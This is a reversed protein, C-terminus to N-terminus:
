RGPFALMLDPRKNPPQNSLDFIEAVPLTPVTVDLGVAALQNQILEAMQQRPAGGDAAWALDVKKSPLSGVIAKLPGTDVTAPFPAMALPLSEEPWMSEQASALGGWATDVISRRDMATMLAKRLAKDVFVGSAANLWIAEGVGGIAKVVSFPPNQQYALVDPVAFGNPIM